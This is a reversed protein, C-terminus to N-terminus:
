AARQNRKEEPYRTAIANVVMILARRVTRWFRADQEHKRECAECM